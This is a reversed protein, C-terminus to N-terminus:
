RRQVMEGLLCGHLLAVKDAVAVVRGGDAPGVVCADGDRHDDVVLLPGLVGGEVAVGSALGGALRGRGEIGALAVQGVLGKELVAAADADPADHINEFLVVDGAGEVCAGQGKLAVGLDAGLGDAVSVLDHPMAIAPLLVVAHVAVGLSPGDALRHVGDFTDAALPGQAPVGAVAGADVGAIQDDLFAPELVVAVGVVVVQGVPGLHVAVRPQNDRIGQLDVVVLVPAAVQEGGLVKELDGLCREVLEVLFACRVGLHHGDAQVAADYALGAAGPGEVLEQFVGGLFLADPEGAAEVYGAPPLLVVRRRDSNHNWPNNSQQSKPSRLASHIRSIESDCLDCNQCSWLRLLWVM